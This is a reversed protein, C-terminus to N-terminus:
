VEEEPAQRKRHLADGSGRIVAGIKSAISEFAMASISKSDTMVIPHGQDSEIRLDPDIPIHGLYEIGRREADVRATGSGFLDLREGCHPCVYGSMNELLAIRPIKLEKAMNIARRADMLSVEQPTTVVIAMQPSTRQAITLVEDGTGPPLDIVLADLEGWATEGLFQEIANSRMPGRWIVPAEAPMMSALSVVKVGYAEQPQIENEIAEAADDIGLMHPVNPGTIDADLLGVSCGAKALACAINVAVTSKGVGGKGSFVVIRFRIDALAQELARHRADVEEQRANM